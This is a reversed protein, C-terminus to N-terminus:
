MNEQNSRFEAIIRGHGRKGQWDTELVIHKLKKM